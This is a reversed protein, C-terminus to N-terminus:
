LTKLIYDSMKNELSQMSFSLEYGLEQLSVKVGQDQGIQNELKISAQFKKSLSKELEDLEKKQLPNPSFVIGLYVNEQLAKQRSLESVIDSIINLRSNQVLLKIFNKFSPKIEDFFSLILELKDSKKLECSEVILRFKENEFGQLILNLGQYFSEFDDRALIAKAYKKAILTQM